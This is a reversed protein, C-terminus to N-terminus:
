ISTFDTGFYPLREVQPRARRVVVLGILSFGLLPLIGPEPVSIVRLTWSYDTAWWEPLSPDIVAGIGLSNAILSYTGATLPLAKGFDVQLPAADVFSVTQDGLVDDICYGVGSCLREDAYASVTNRM